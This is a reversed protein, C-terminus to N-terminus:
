TFQHYACQNTTYQETTM